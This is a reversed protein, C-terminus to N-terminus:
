HNVSRYLNLATNGLYAANMGDNRLNHTSNVGVILGLGNRGIGTLWPGGSAGHGMLCHMEQQKLGSKVSYPYSRGKCYRLNKFDVQQGSPLLDGPHGFDLINNTRSGNFRVGQAGTYWQLRHPLSRNTVKLAAYDYNLDNSRLWATTTTPRGSLAWVGYPDVISNGSPYAGPVFVMSDTHWHGGETVCHGATLITSQNRTPIVTATCIYYATPNHHSDRSAVSLLMGTPRATSDTTNHWVGARNSQASLTPAAPAASTPTVPQVTVAGGEPKDASKSQLKPTSSVDLAPDSLSGQRFAQNLRDQTWFKKVADEAAAAPGSAISSAVAAPTSPHAAAPAASHASSGCASLALVATLASVGAFTRGPSPLRLTSGKL